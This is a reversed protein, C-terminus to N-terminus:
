LMFDAASLKAASVHRLLIEMEAGANGAVNIQVITDAGHQLVRVQGEASFSAAGIFKFEQGGSQSARADIDRLDIRDIFGTSSASPNLRFDEIIDRAAAPRSDVLANFDFIDRDAGGLLHDRGSGGSLTDKGISGMLTDAGLGGNLADAGKGGFLFDNGGSGSLRDSAAGGCLGDAGTSGTFVGAGGSLAFHWSRLGTSAASASKAEEDGGVAFDTVGGEVEELAQSAAESIGTTEDVYRVTAALYRQEYEEESITGDLVDSIGSFITAHFDVTADYLKKADQMQRYLNPVGLRRGLADVFEDAAEYFGGLVKAAAREKVGDEFWELDSGLATNALTWLGSSVSGSFEPSIATAETLADWDMSDPPPTAPFGGAFHPSGGPSTVIVEVANSTNNLEDSEAATGAYDAIIGLFYTGPALGVNTPLSATVLDQVAGPKMAGTTLEGLFIDSTTITSDASLYVAFRQSDLKGSGINELTHHIVFPDGAEIIAANLASITGTLDPQAPPAVPTIYVEYPVDALSGNSNRGWGNICLNYFNNSGAVLTYDFTYIAYNSITYSDAVFTDAEIKLNITEFDHFVFRVQYTQGAILARPHLPDGGGSNTQTDIAISDQWTNSYLGSPDRPGLWGRITTNYGFGWYPSEQSTGLDGSVTESYNSGIFSTPM